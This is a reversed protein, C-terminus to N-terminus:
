KPELSMVYDFAENLLEALRNLDEFMAEPIRVYGHMESNYSYFKGTGFAESYAQQVPKAYRFGLGGAKNLQSFMHGNASTYPM